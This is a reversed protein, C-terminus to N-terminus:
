CRCSFSDEESCRNAIPSRPPINCTQIFRALLARFQEIHLWVLGQCPDPPRQTEDQKSHLRQWPRRAPALRIVRLRRLPPRGALNQPAAVEQLFVVAVLVVATVDGLYVYM